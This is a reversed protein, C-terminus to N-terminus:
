SVPLMIKGEQWNIRRGNNGEGQGLLVDVNGLLKSFVLEFSLFAM